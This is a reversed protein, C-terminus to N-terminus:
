SNLILHETYYPCDKPPLDKKHIWNSTCSCVICEGGDWLSETALTWGLGDRKTNNNRCKKCVEKNLM